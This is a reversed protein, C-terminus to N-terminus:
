VKSLAEHLLARDDGWVDLVSSIFEAGITDFDRLMRVTEAANNVNMTVIAHNAVHKAAENISYKHACRLVCLANATDPMRGLYLCQLVGDIVSASTDTLKVERSRAEAMGSNLTVAFVPSASCLVCAHASFVEGGSAVLTADGTTARTAWMSKMISAPTSRDSPVNRLVKLGLANFLYDHDRRAIHIAVVIDNDPEVPCPHQAMGIVIGVDGECSDVYDVEANAVDEQQWKTLQFKNAMDRFSSYVYDNDVVKVLSGVAICLSPDRGTRM